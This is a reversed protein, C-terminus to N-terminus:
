VLGTFALQEVCWYLNIVIKNENQELFLMRYRWNFTVCRFRFPVTVYRTLVRVSRNFLETSIDGVRNVFRGRVITCYQAYRHLVSERLLGATM